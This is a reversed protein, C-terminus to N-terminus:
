FPSLGHWESECVAVVLLGSVLHIGFVSVSVDRVGSVADEELLIEPGDGEIALDKGGVIFFFVSKLITVVVFVLELETAQQV